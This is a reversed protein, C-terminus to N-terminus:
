PRRLKTPPSTVERLWEATQPASTTAWSQMAPFSRFRVCQSLVRKRSTPQDTQREVQELTAVLTKQLREDYQRHRASGILDGAALLDIEIKLAAVGHPLDSFAAPDMARMLDILQAEDIGYRQALTAWKAELTEAAAAAVLVAQFGGLEGAVLPPYTDPDCAVRLVKLLGPADPAGKKDRRYQYRPGGLYDALTYLQRHAELSALHERYFDLIKDVEVGFQKCLPELMPHWPSSDYAILDAREAPEGDGKVRRTELFHEDGYSVLIERMRCKFLASLRRVVYEYICIVIRRQLTLRADLEAIGSPQNPYRGVDGLPLDLFRLRPYGPADALFPFSIFDDGGRVANGFRVAEGLSEPWPAVDIVFHRMPTITAIIDLRPRTSLWNLPHLAPNAAPERALCELARWVVEDDVTQGAKGVTQQYNYIAELADRTSTRSDYQTLHSHNM